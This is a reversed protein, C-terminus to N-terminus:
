RGTLTCRCEGLSGDRPGRYSPHADGEDTTGDRV